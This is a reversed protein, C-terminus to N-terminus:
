SGLQNRFGKRSMAVIRDRLQRLTNGEGDGKGQVEDLYNEQNSLIMSKSTTGYFRESVLASLMTEVGYLMQPVLQMREEVRRLLKRHSQGDKELREEIRDLRTTISQLENMGTAVRVVHGISENTVVDASGRLYAAMLGNIMVAYSIDDVGSDYRIVKRVADSLDKNITVSRDGEAIEGNIQVHFPVDKGGKKGGQISRQAGTSHQKQADSGIVYGQPDLHYQQRIMTAYETHSKKVVVAVPNALAGTATCNEQTFRAITDLAQSGAYMTDIDQTSIYNTEELRNIPALLTRLCQKLAPVIQTNWTQTIDEGSRVYAFIREVYLRELGVQDAAQLVAAQTIGM